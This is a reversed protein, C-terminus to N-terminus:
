QLNRLINKIKAHAVGNQIILFLKILQIVAALMLQLVATLILLSVVYTFRSICEIMVCREMALLKGNQSMPIFTFVVIQKIVSAIKFNKEVLEPLEVFDLNSQRIGTLELIKDMHIEDGDYNIFEKRLQALAHDLLAFL